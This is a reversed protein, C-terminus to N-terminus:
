SRKQRKNNFAEPPMPHEELWARYGPGHMAEFKEPTMDVWSRATLKFASISVLYPLRWLRWSAARVVAAVVSTRLMVFKDAQHSNCTLDRAAQRQREYAVARQLKWAVPGSCLTLSAPFSEVLARVADNDLGAAAQLAAWNATVVGEDRTLLTPAGRLVKGVDLQPHLRQLAGVRRQLVGEIDHLGLLTLARQVIWVPDLDVPLQALAALLPPLREGMSADVDKSNVGYLSASRGPSELGHAALARDVAKRRRIIGAPDRNDRILTCERLALQAADGDYALEAAATRMRRIYDELFAVSRHRKHKGGWQLIKQRTRQQQELQHPQVDAEPLLAGEAVWFALVAAQAAADWPVDKVTTPRGPRRRPKGALATGAAVLRRLQATRCAPPSQCNTM